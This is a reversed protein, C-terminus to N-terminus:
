SGNWSDPMLIEYSADGLMGRIQTFKLTTNHLVTPQKASVTNTVQTGVFAIVLLIISFITLQKKIKM